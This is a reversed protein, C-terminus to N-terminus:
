IDSDADGRRLVHEPFTAEHKQKEAEAAIPTATDETSLLGKADPMDGTAQLESGTDIPQM